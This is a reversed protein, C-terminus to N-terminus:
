HKMLNELGNAFEAVIQAIVPTDWPFLTAEIVKRIQNIEQIRKNLEINFKVNSMAPKYAEAGYELFYVEIDHCFSRHAIYVVSENDSNKANIDAGHETLLKVIKFAVNGSFRTIAEMLATEGRNSKTNPDADNEVLFKLIDFNQWYFANMLATEGHPTKVNTNAGNEVLFKVIELNGTVSSKMLATESYNGKQRPEQLLTNIDFGSQYSVKLYNLNNEEIAMLIDHGVGKGTTPPNDWPAQMTEM